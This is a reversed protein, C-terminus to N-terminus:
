SGNILHVYAAIGAHLLAIGVLLAWGVNADKKRLAIEERSPKPQPIPPHAELWMMRAIWLMIVSVLVGLWVNLSFATIVVLAIIVIAWLM